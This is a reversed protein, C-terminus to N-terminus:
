STKRKKEKFATNVFYVNTEKEFYFEVRLNYKNNLEILSTYNLGKKNITTNLFFTKIIAYILHEVYPIENIEKSTSLPIGKFSFHKNCHFLGGVFDFNGTNNIKLHRFLDIRLIKNNM